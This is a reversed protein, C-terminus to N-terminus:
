CKVLTKNEHFKSLKIKVFSICLKVFIFGGSIEMNVTYHFQFPKFGSTSIVNVVSFSSLTCTQSGALTGILKSYQILFYAARRLQIGVSKSLCIKSLFITFIKKGM